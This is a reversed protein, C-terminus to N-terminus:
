FHMGIGLGTKFGGLDVHTQYNNPQYLYDFFTDLFLNDTFYYYFGSKLVGGYVLRSVKESQNFLHNKLEVRAFSAGLGLYVSLQESLVYPLKIGLSTNAISIRTPDNLGISHGHKSFWDFNVWGQFCNYVSTSAEVQFSPGVTGYIERFRGSSHWFAATRFEISNQTEASLPFSGM